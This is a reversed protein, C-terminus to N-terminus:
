VYSFSDPKETVPLLFGARNLQNALHRLTKQTKIHNKTLTYAYLSVRNVATSHTM